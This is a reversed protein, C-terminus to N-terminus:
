LQLGALPLANARPVFVTVQVAVSEDLLVALQENLTITVAMAGQAGDLGFAVAPVPLTVKVQVAEVPEAGIVYLTLRDSYLAPGQVVMAVPIV